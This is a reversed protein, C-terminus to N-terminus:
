VTLKKTNQAMLMPDFASVASSAMVGASTLKHGNGSAWRGFPQWYCYCGGVASTLPGM